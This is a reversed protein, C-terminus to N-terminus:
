EYQEYNNISRGLIKYVLPLIAIIAYVAGAAVLGYYVENLFVLALVLVVISAAVAKKKLRARKKKGLIPRAATDAPAYKYLGIGIVAFILIFAATNIYIGQLAYPV